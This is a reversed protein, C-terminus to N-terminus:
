SVFSDDVMRLHRDCCFFADNSPSHRYSIHTYYFTYVFCFYRFGRITEATQTTM